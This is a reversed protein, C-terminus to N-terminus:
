MNNNTPRHKYGSLENLYEPIFISEKLDEIQDDALFKTNIFHIEIM